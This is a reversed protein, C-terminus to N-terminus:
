TMTQYSNKKQKLRIVEVKVKCCRKNLNMALVSMQSLFQKGSSTNSQSQTQFDTM